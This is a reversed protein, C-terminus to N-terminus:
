VTGTEMIAKVIPAYGTCRCINGGIGTRVEAGYPQSQGAPLRLGDDPLRPHLLRMAPRPEGPVAGASPATRRRQGAGRRDDADGRRGAGGAAPVVAGGRRGGPHHLRRLRWARLGLHTGTLDLENRLFDALTLRPEVRGTYERGNVTMKIDILQQTM